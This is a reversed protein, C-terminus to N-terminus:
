DQEIEGVRQLILIQIRMKDRMRQKRSSLTVIVRRPTRVWLRLFM